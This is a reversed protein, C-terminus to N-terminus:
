YKIKKTDRLIKKDTKLILESYSLVKEAEEFMGLTILVSAYYPYASYDEPYKQLYEEYAEKAKFPNAKSLADINRFEYTDYYKNLM